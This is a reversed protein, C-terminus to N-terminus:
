KIVIEQIIKVIELFVIILLGNQANVKMVILYVLVVIVMLVYYLIKLPANKIIRKVNKMQQLALKILVYFQKIQADQIVKVFHLNKLVHAMQM